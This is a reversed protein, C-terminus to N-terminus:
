ALFGPIIFQNSLLEFILLSAGLGSHSGVTVTARPAARNAPAKLLRCCDSAYVVAPTLWAGFLHIQTSLCHYRTEPTFYCGSLFSILLRLIVVNNTFDRRVERQWPDRRERSKAFLPSRGARLRKPSPLPSIKQNM